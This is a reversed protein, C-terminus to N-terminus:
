DKRHLLINQSNVLTKVKCYLSCVAYGGWGEEAAATINQPYPLLNLKTESLGAPPSVNRGILLKRLSWCVSKWTMGEDVCLLSEQQQCLVWSFFLGLIWTVLSQAGQETEGPRSPLQKAGQAVPMKGAQSGAEEWFCFMTSVLKNTFPEELSVELSERWPLSTGPRSVPCPWDLSFRQFKLEGRQWRLYELFSPTTFGSRKFYFILGPCRVMWAVHIKWNDFDSTSEVELGLHCVSMLWM